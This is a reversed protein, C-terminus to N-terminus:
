AKGGPLLLHVRLGGQSADELKTQGGYLSVMENVIALGLGSGSRAEDWRAGPQLVVQHAEIPLGPGDDEVRLSIMEGDEDFRASVHVSRRAYRYANEVLNGLIESFDQPDCAVYLNEPVDLTLTVSSNANIRRMAAALAQVAEALPTRVGPMRAVAAARARAIHHEIHRQMRRTEELITSSATQCTPTEALQGAEDAIVSLSGRLGHALNGAQVRAQKLNERGTELLANLEDVLPRVERPFDGEVSMTEGARLQRLSKALRGFPALGLSVLGAAAALLLIGLGALALMLIRNFSSVMADLERKDTGVIFRLVEGDGARELREAVFATGTPGEVRHRHPQVGVEPRDEPMILASKGLSPSRLAVDEGRQIQWYYGSRPVDYRPDSFPSVLSVDRDEWSALGQLEEVHVDLEHYFQTEAHYRFISSLLFYAAAMGAAVWILAALILRIRLSSSSKM